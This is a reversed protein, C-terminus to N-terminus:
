EDKTSGCPTDFGAECDWCSNNNSDKNQCESKLKEGKEPVDYIHVLQVRGTEPNDFSIVIEDGEDDVTITGIHTNKHSLNITLHKEGGTGRSFKESTVTAYLKM